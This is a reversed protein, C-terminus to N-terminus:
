CTSTGGEESPRQARSLSKFEAWGATLIRIAIFLGGVPIALGQVALPLRLAPTRAELMIQGDVMEIGEYIMIGIMALSCSMSFLMMPIKM